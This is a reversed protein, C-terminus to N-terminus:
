LQEQDCRHWSRLDYVVGPDPLAVIYWGHNFHGIVSNCLTPGLCCAQTDPDGPTRRIALMPSGITMRRINAARKKLYMFLSTLFWMSWLSASWTLVIILLPQNESRSISSIWLFFVYVFSYYLILCILHHWVFIIWRFLVAFKPLHFCWVGLRYVVLCGPLFM